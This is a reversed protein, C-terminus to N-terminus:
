RVPPSTPRRGFSIEGDDIRVNFGCEPNSCIWARFRLSCGGGSADSLPLLTGQGCEACAPLEGSEELM